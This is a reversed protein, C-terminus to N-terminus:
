NAAKKLIEALDMDYLGYKGYEVVRGLEKGNKMVIITPVNEVQLAETLHGWTKKARDVGILSIQKDPFGAADTLAYMKPIVFHSDECWTGMYVLLHLSDKHQRLGAVADPRPTYGKLNAAYWTFSTDSELVQRNIIGRLSKEGPREVLVEYPQQAFLAGTVPFALLLFIWKKM